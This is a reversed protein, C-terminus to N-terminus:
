RAASTSVGSLGSALLAGQIAEALKKAPGRGWYHFFLIRPQEHTMHSHIAVINIGGVRMAKLASQLEDETVAFDGDVVANDDSGAFAMWTNVGMANDIKMGHMTAPHGISFKVMGNNAESTLGFVKNLPEASISNKEPLAIAGFSDKPQPTAARIEKVKDYVKRVAGALQAATAEGEIHMFYVKPHDFFFHNHLATVSLGNNLAVSMAPNVEDEFLVTDGMMMAKDNSGQFAAWTGLGMFPPMTWGDVAVKVDARPFTVKYVGEKENLKGKLATIQDIKATDLDAGLSRAVAILSISAILLWRTAATKSTKM